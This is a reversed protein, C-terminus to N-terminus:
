KIKKSLKELEPYFVNNTISPFAEGNSSSSFLQTLTEDFLLRPNTIDIQKDFKLENALLPSHISSGDGDDHSSERTVRKQKVLLINVIQAIM